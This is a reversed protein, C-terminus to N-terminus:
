EVLNWKKLGSCITEEMLKHDIPRDLYFPTPLSYILMPPFDVDDKAGAIAQYQFVVQDVFPGTSKPGMGGLIGILPQHVSM